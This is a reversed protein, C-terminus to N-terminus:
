ICGVATWAQTTAKVEDSTAGYLDTAANLCAQAAQKFTEAPTYYVTEARYMIQLAKEMGIGKDVGLGSTRNKGGDVLLVFANNAIGSSYHVDLDKAYNAYNDVSHGGEANDRTPDDMYRLADGAKGPTWEEAGVGWSFKVAPNTKAAMYQVGKGMIDSMAENLGGSEGVYDLGATRQTFGHTIEHGGVDLSTLPGSKKGDGDGYNMQSGDWFANVLDTKYHVYNNLAEGKGDISDRGFENKYFDYTKEAAYEADVASTQNTPDSPEGWINNADSLEVASAVDTGHNVDRTNVGGGRTPDALKWTGDPNQVSGVDVLGAYLTTDDAQGVIGLPPPPPTAVTDLKLGWQTLSGKDGPTADNLKFTWAGKSDEGALASSLDVSTQVSAGSPVAVQVTKGSPSTLTATLGEVSKHTLKLTLTAKQTSLEKGVHLTSSVPKADSFAIAKRTSTSAGTQAAAVQAKGRFSDVTNYKDLVKGSKADVFYNMSLPIAGSFDNLKMQYALHFAGDPAKVVLLKPAPTNAVTNGFNKKAAALAQDATLKPTVSLSADPVGETNDTVSDVTGAQSAHSIVQQGWIPVGKFTRDMRVHVDGLTDRLAAHPQFDLSAQEPHAAVAGAVQEKLFAYSTQVAKQGGPSALDLPTVRISRMGDPSPPTGAHLAVPSENQEADFGSAPPAASPSSAPGPAAESTTGAPVSPPAWSAPSADSRRVSM